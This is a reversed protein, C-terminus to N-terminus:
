RIGPPPPGPFFKTKRTRAAPVTDATASKEKCLTPEELIDDEHLIETKEVKADVLAAIDNRSFFSTNAESIERARVVPSEEIETVEGAPVASSEVPMSVRPSSREPTPENHWRASGVSSIGASLTPEIALAQNWLRWAWVWLGFMGALGVVLALISVM